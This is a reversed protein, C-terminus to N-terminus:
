STILWKKYPVNRQQNPLLLIVVAVLQMYDMILIFLTKVYMFCQNVMSIISHNVILVRGMNASLANTEDTSTLNDIAFIM